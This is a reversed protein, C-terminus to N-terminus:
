LEAQNVSCANSRTPLEEETFGPKRRHISISLAVSVAIVPLMKQRHRMATGAAGTGIGLVLVACVFSVLFVNLSKQGRLSKARVLGLAIILIAILYFLGDLAFSIIDALGRWDFPLPSTLLFFGKLGGYLAFSGLSDVEIGTLYASGASIGTAAEVAEEASSINELKELFLAPYRIIIFVTILLIPVGRVLNKMRFSFRSNSRDYFLLAFGYGSLMGLVGLHFSSAVVVLALSILYYIVSYGVLWRTFAYISAAVLVIILSERLFLVSIVSPVPLLCSILLVPKSIREPIRLERMTLGVFILAVIGLILNGYQVVLRSPGIIWYIAGCIQPFLGGYLDTGFLEPNRYIVLATNYFNETDGGSSFLVIGSYQDIWLLSLRFVFGALLAFAMWGTGVVLLFSFAVSYIALVTTWGVESLEFIGGLSFVFISLIIFLMVCLKFQSTILTKSENSM